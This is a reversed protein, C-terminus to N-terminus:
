IKKWLDGTGPRIVPVYFHFFFLRGSSSALFQSLIVSKTTEKAMM